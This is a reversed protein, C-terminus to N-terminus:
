LTQLGVWWCLEAGISQFTRPTSSYRYVSANIQHIEICHDLTRRSGFSKSHQQMYWIRSLQIKVEAGGM